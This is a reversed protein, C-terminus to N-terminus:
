WPYPLGRRWVFSQLTRNAHGGFFTETVYALDYITPTTWPTFPLDVAPLPENVEDQSDALSAEYRGWQNRRARVLFVFDMAFEAQADNQPQMLLYVAHVFYPGM